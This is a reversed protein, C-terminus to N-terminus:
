GWENKMGIYYVVIVLLVVKRGLVVFIGCGLRGKWLSGVVM